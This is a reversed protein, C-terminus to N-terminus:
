RFKVSTITNRPFIMWDCRAPYDTGVRQYEVLSDVVEYKLANKMEQYLQKAIDGEIMLEQTVVTTRSRTYPNYDFSSEIKLLANHDNYANANSTLALAALTVFLLKVDREETQM